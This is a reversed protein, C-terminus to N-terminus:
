FLVCIEWLKSCLISPQAGVQPLLSCKTKSLQLIDWPLVDGLAFPRLATQWGVTTKHTKRLPLISSKWALTSLILAIPAAKLHRAAASTRSPPSPYPPTPTMLPPTFSSYVLASLHLSCSFSSCYEVYYQELDNLGITKIQSVPIWGLLTGGEQLPLPHISIISWIM